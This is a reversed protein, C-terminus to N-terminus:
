PTDGGDLAGGALVGRDDVFVLTRPLKQQGQPRLRTGNWALRVDDVAQVAVEARQHWTVVHKEHPELWVDDLVVRGDVVLRVRTRTTARVELEQPEAAPLAPSVDLPNTRQVIVSIVLVLLAMASLLALRQVWPLMPAPVPDTITPATLASETVSVPTSRSTPATRSTPGTRSTPATAQSPTPAATPATASATTETPPGGAHARRRPSRSARPSPFAPTPPPVELAEDSLGYHDRLTRLYGAAYPGSPLDEYRGEELAVIHAVPIRTASAVQDPTQRLEERRARLVEGLGPHPRTM